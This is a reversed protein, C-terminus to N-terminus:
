SDLQHSVYLVSNSRGVGEAEEAIWKLVVM